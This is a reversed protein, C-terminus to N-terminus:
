GSVPIDIEGEDNSAILNKFWLQVTHSPPAIGYQNPTEGPLYLGCYWEKKGLHELNVLCEQHQYLLIEDLTGDDNYRYEIHFDKPGKVSRNSVHM